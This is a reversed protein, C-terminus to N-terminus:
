TATQSSLFRALNLIGRRARIRQGESTNESGSPSRPGLNDSHTTSPFFLLLLFFFWRRLNYSYLGVRIHKHKHTHTQTRRHSYEERRPFRHCTQCSPGPQCSPAPQSLESSALSTERPPNVRKRKTTTTTLRAEDTRGVRGGVWRASALMFGATTIIAM